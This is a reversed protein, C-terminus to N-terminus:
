LVPVAKPTQESLYREIIAPHPKRVFPWTMAQENLSEAEQNEGYDQRMTEVEPNPNFWHNDFITGAEEEPTPPAPGNRYEVFNARVRHNVFHNVGDRKWVQFQGGPFAHWRNTMFWMEPQQMFSRLTGDFDYAGILTDTDLLALLDWDSRNLAHYFAAMFSCLSYNRFIVHYDGAPEPNAGANVLPVKSGFRNFEPPSWTGAVLFCGIPKLYKEVNAHWAKLGFQGEYKADFEEQTTWYSM